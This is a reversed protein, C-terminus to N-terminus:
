GVLCTQRSSLIRKRCLVRVGVATAQASLLGFPGQTVQKYSLQCSPLCNPACSATPTAAAKHLCVSCHSSCLM